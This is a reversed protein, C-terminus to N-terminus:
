RLGTVFDALAANFPAAAELNSLHSAPLTVMTAGPIAARMADADAVTTVPDSAGAVLLTPVHIRAQDERLDSTGLADCCAAYGEPDTQALWGCATAVLAPQARTFADTFWRQPATSALTQMAKVGDRRILASREQWTQRTGIRAASNAVVIGRLRAPAHVGLWLATHGGM